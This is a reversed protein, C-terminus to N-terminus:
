ISILGNIQETFLTNTEIPYPCGDHFLQFDYVPMDLDRDSMYLLAKKCLLYRIKPTRNECLLEITSTGGSYQIEYKSTITAYDKSAFLLLQYNLGKMCLTTFHGFM